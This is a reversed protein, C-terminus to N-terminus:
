PGPKWSDPPLHEGTAARRLRALFHSWGDMHGGVLDEPLDTHVVEVRTGASIPTLEFSVMSSGPPLSENGAFGWSLTVRRPPDVELFMGRAPYGAIDVAFQGGPVPDLSAWQGMWSTMGADTVLFQFVTEPAADIDITARHEAM